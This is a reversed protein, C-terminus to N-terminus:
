NDPRRRFWLYQREGWTSNDVRLSAGERVEVNRMIDELLAPNFGKSEPRTRVRFLGIADDIIEDRDVCAAGLAIAGCSCTRSDSLPQPETQHEAIQGCFPCRWKRIDEPDDFRHDGMGRVM